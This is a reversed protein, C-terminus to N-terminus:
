SEPPPPRRATYTAVRDLQDAVRRRHRLAADLLSPRLRTARARRPAVVRDPLAQIIRDPALALSCGCALLVFLVLTVQTFALADYAFMGIAYAFVSSALAAVLVADERDAGLSARALRSVFRLFLWALAVVGVIGLDLLTGLWQNDLLRANAREGLTIRTGVGYGVLPKQKFEDISPALDAIRGGALESQANSAQQSVLIDPEFQSRLTGLTGPSVFQILAVTALALPIFRKTDEWRLIAFLIAWAFLMLIPTRSVTVFSGVVLLVLCAIWIPRRRIIALAVASPALLALLAGLAIPHEASGFARVRGDSIGLRVEEVDTGAPELFPFHRDLGIFPTWGTKQEVIALVALVSGGLVLFALATECAERTRLVNITLYFVIVYGVFVSLLKVVETQYASVRDPNSALSAVIAFGLLLLPGELGSWRLRLDTQALACLIWALVLVGILVRYPDLEFPLSVPLAYRRPPVFLVILLLLGVLWRWDIRLEARV